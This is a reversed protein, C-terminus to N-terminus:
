TARALASEIHRAAAASKDRAAQIVQVMERRVAPDAFRRHADPNGLGGVLEWLRWMLEHEAAYGAAANLLDETMRYPVIDGDSAQILFQSGYWRAEAVMGVVQNHVDYRQRLVAEDDPFDGDRLLHQAWATYAALGNHRDGFTVPTRAVQLLWGLAQRYTEALSPRPRQEGITIFSFGPPYRFWDRVRFQGTPEFEVGAGFEPMGQFFSWGILVDGSEDYGTVLAAEPPGVPGFALVPRGRGLSTLIERRCHEETDRGPGSGVGHFAFEYGAARFAREFPAGPDDSMYMIEVNDGEWGPKWSLFAAVGTVGIFFAYTCPVKCGPPLFRCTRCGFVPRGDPVGPEGSLRGPQTSPELYELLATMAAPFPIDEPCRGGPGTYFSM